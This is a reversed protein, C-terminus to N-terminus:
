VNSVTEIKVADKCFLNASVMLWSAAMFRTM